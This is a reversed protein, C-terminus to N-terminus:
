FRLVLGGGVVVNHLGSGSTLANLSPKGSYFDRVEFRAGLWGLLSVDVGGGFDFVGRHIHRPAPNPGGDVTMTSHEYLAYGAGVAIYPALRAKPTFKVRVGPTIYLTAVDKTASPLNGEVGRSPSALLHAEGFLEATESGLIRIGYNAQLATGGKLDLRIGPGSAERGLIRGLTLGIEQRQAAAPAVLGCCIVLRQLSRM